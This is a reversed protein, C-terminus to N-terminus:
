RRRRLHELLTLNPYGDAALGAHRQYTHIARRTSPGLNGDVTGVPYGLRNLIQQMERRESAVLQRREAPWAAHLGPEGRLRDALHGVALAYVDANNYRKIVRFNKLLLFAPGRAGAPLYLTAEDALRPYASGSVRRIGLKQWGRLSRKHSRRALSYDFGSPLKVEYGWTKGPEWGAQRLYSATSALADPISTWINRKGDGDFDVAYANYTTPIFQTHGMAGAWSGIMGEPTVDGRELIMLAALLQKKGYPARRGGAHALTALSQIVNRVIKPNDLVRGYASELGWIALVIHRDVGYATEIRRLWSQWLDKQERGNGIRLVSVRQRVYAGATQHFEPQRNAKVLVSIDPKVQAFAARYTRRSVGAAKAQAWFKNKWRDFEDAGAGSAQIVVAIAIALVNRLFGSM